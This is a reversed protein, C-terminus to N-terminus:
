LLAFACQAIAVPKGDDANKLDVRGFAATRGARVVQAEALCDAGSLPKLFHCSQDMTTLPRPGGQSAMVALVMATDALAMLAQGSVVGGERCLRDSFAMRLTASDSGMAEVSLDLDLVWAAFNERLFTEASERDFGSM